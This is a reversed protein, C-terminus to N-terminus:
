VLVLSLYIHIHGRAVNRLVEKVFTYGALSFFYFLLQLALTHALLVRPKM